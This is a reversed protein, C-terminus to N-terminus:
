HFDSLVVDDTVNSLGVKMMKTYAGVMTQFRWRSQRRQRLIHRIWDLYGHVRTYQSPENPRACGIGYSVIGVQLSRGYTPSWVTLPGGSDGQFM